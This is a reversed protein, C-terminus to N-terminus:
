PAGAAVVAIGGPSAPLLLQAALISGDPGVRAGQADIWTEVAPTAGALHFGGLDVGMVGPVAQLVAIAHSAAVGEGIARTDPTYAAALAQNAARVVAQAHYAPDVQIRARVVFNLPEYALVEFRGHAGADVMSDRLETLLGEDPEEPGGDGGAVTVVVVARGRLDRLPQARAKTIGPFTLAYDAFDHLSVVRELVRAERPASLSAQAPTQGNAGGEAAVPNIASRVGLPASRLITVRGAALNGSPGIGIRYQATVNGVGTPLRAGNIGDGFTITAAGNEDVRVQYAAADAPQGYLSDVRTWEVGNVWVKLAAERGSPNDAPVWTLPSRALRFSQGAASASGSGLVEPYPWKGQTAGQTARALNGCVKVTSPDYANQLTAALQLTTNRLGTSASAAVQAVEGISASGSAAPQWLLESARPTLTGGHNSSDTVPVGTPDTPPPGMLTALGRPRRVRIAGADLRLLLVGQADDIWWAQGATQTRVTATPKVTVGVDQLAQLFATSLSGRDLDAAYEASVAVLPDLALSALTLGDSVLLPTAGCGVALGAKSAALARVDNALGLAAPKWTTGGPRLAYLGAGRTGAWAVGDAGAALSVVTTAGPLDLGTSLATWDELPATATFVGGGGTGALAEGNPLFALSRVDLNGLGGNWPTWAAGGAPLWWIGKPTGAALGGDPAFALARVAVAPLGAAATCWAGDAGRRQVGADATAAFVAGTSDVALAIVAMGATGAATWRVGDTSTFVAGKPGAAWVASPGAALAHVPTKALATGALTWTAGGDATSWLGAAPGAAGPDGAIGALVTGGPGWAIAAVDVSALGAPAFGPKAPLKTPLFVGARPWAAARIRRGNVAVSRGPPLSPLAGALKLKTGAFPVLDPLRQSVLPISRAAAYANTARMDFVELGPVPEVVVETAQGRRGYRDLTTTQASVVKLVAVAAQPQNTTPDPAQQLVIWSGKVVQPIVGSLYVLNDCIPPAPWEEVPFGDYPTAAVLMGAGAALVTVNTRNLGPPAPIPTPQGCDGPPSGCPPSDCPPSVVPMGQTGMVVWAGLGDRVFVGAPTAAVLGDATTALGTIPLPSDDAEPGRLAIWHPAPHLFHHAPLEFLGADTGAILVPGDALLARVVNPQGEVTTIPLGIGMVKGSDASWVGADTGIALEGWPAMAFSWCAPAPIAPPSAAGTSPENGTQLPVASWGATAEASRYPGFDTGAYVTGMGDDFVARVPAAPLRTLALETSQGGNAPTLTTAGSVSDWSQGGDCTRYVRGGSMGAYVRGPVGVALSYVDGFRPGGLSWEAGGDTSVYIGQGATGAYIRGAEDVALARVDTAPLGGSVGTWDGGTEPFLFVGGLIKRYQRKQETNLSSWAAANYGFLRTSRAFTWVGPAAMAGTGRTGAPVPAWTVRTERAQTNPEVTTAMGFSFASADGAAALVPAGVTIGTGAGVLRAQTDTVALAQAVTTYAPSPVMANWAPRAELSESTEFTQATEGTGPISQVATGAPVQIREPSGPAGSVSFAMWTSAAIGPQLPFGLSAILESISKAEVATSLYGENLFREQYFTLVDGITAWADLLSASFDRSTSPDLVELPRSATGDSRVEHRPLEALMRRLFSQYTGVRFHLQRAGPPNARALAEDVNM